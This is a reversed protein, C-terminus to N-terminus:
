LTLKQHERPVRQMEHMMGQAHRMLVLHYSSAALTPTHLPRVSHNTPSECM